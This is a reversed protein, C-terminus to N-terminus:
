ILMLKQQTVEINCYPSVHQCEKGHIIQLRNHDLGNLGLQVNNEAFLSADLGEILNDQNSIPKLQFPCSIDSQRALESAFIAVKSLNLLAWNSNM